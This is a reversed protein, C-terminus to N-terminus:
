GVAESKPGKKPDKDTSELLRDDSSNPMSDAPPPAPPPPAVPNQQASSRISILKRLVEFWFPAGFTVAVATILWGLIKVMWWPISNGGQQETWGLGLPSEVSQKYTQMILKLDRAAAEATRATDAPNALTDLTYVSNEAMKVVKETLEANASLTKYVQIIDANLVFALVIGIGFLWWKTSRKYWDSAREMVEDFWSEMKVKFDYVTGDSQRYLFQLVRKLDGDPLAEIKEYLEDGSESQMLDYLIASFTSKNIWAPLKYTSLTNRRHAAYSLQRFFPHNLFKETWDGLMNDLTYLLHRGRLSLLAALIEMITSAMLSVFLLVFVIGIIVNLLAFLGQM